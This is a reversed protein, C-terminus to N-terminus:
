LRAARHRPGRRRLRRLDHADLLRLREAVRAKCIYPSCGSGAGSWASESFGRPDNATTLSTGGAATVGPLASPWETDGYGNDGASAVVAVGSFSFDSELGSEGSYESGGWSNSIQKAGLSAATAEATLMDSGGSSSAEVLMISCNPCIASVAEMDLSDETIWGSQSGTPDAPYSTGGHEDVKRFCGNATTCAPLGFQSRYQALDSEAHSDGYADIVAVTDGTGASASLASLDYAQQM